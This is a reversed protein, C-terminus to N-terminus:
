SNFLNLLQNQLNKKSFIENMIRRNNNSQEENILQFDLANVSRFEIGKEKFFRAHNADPNLFVTAGNALLFTINGMGQQRQQPFVAANIGLLFLRYDDLQLVETIPIFRNSFLSKGLEITEDLKENSGYSLPTYITFDDKKDLREYTQHLIKAHENSPDASHGIMIRLHSPVIFPKEVSSSEPVLEVVNSPYKFSWIAKTQLSFFKTIEEYESSMGVALYSIKKLARSQIRLLLKQKYTLHGIKYKHLESGWYFWIIEKFTSKPYILLWVMTLVENLGHLIIRDASKLLSYSRWQFSLNFLLNKVSYDKITIHEAKRLVSKKKRWILYEHFNDPDIEDVFSIFDRMLTSDTGIHVIKKSM